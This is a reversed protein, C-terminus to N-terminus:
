AASSTGGGQMVILPGGFMTSRFAYKSPPDTMYRRRRRYPPQAATNRTFSRNAQLPHLTACKAAFRPAFPFTHAWSGARTNYSNGADISGAADCVHVCCM